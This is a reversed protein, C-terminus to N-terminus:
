PRPERAHLVVDRLHTAQGPSLSFVVAFDELVTPTIRGLLGIARAQALLQRLATWDDQRIVGLASVERHLQEATYPAATEGLDAVLRDNLIRLLEAAPLHGHLARILGRDPATFARAPARGMSPAPTGNAPLLRVAEPRDKLCDGCLGHTLDDATASKLRAKCLRCRVWAAVSTLPM